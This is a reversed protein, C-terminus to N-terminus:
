LSDVRCVTCCMSGMWLERTDLPPPTDFLCFFFLSSGNRNKKSVVDMRLLLPPLVHYSQVVTTSCQTNMLVVKLRLLGSVLSM